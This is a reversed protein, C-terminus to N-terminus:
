VIYKQYEASNFVPNYALIQSGFLKKYLVLDSRSLFAKKGDRLVIYQVDPQLGTKREKGSRNTSVAPSTFIDQILVRHHPRPMLHDNPFADSLPLLQFDYYKHKSGSVTYLKPYSESHIHTIRHISDGFAPTFLSEKRFAQHKRKIKVQQHLRLVDRPKKKLELDIAGIERYARELRDSKAVTASDFPNFHARIPSMKIASHTRANYANMTLAVLTEPRSTKLSGMFRFYLQKASRVFREALACKPHPGQSSFIPLLHISTSHPPLLAHQGRGQEGVETSYTRINFETM